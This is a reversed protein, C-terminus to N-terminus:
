RNVGVGVRRVGSGIFKAAASLSCRWSSRCQALFTLYETQLYAEDNELKLDPEVAAMMLDDIEDQPKHQAVAAEYAAHAARAAKMAPRYRKRLRRLARRYRLDNLM